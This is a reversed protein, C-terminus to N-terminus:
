QLFIMHYKDVLRGITVYFSAFFCVITLATIVLRQVPDITKNIAIPLLFINSVTYYMPLRSSFGSYLMGWIGFLWGLVGMVFFLKEEKAVGNVRWRSCYFYTFMVLTQIALPVANSIVGEAYADYWTNAYIWNAVVSMLPTGIVLAAIFIHWFNRNVEM